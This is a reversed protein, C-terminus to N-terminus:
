PGTFVLKCNRDTLGGGRDFTLTLIEDERVHGKLSESKVLIHVPALTHVGKSRIAELSIQQDGSFIMYQAKSADLKAVVSEFPTAIQMADSVRKSADHTCSMTM